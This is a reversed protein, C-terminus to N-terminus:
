ITSSQPLAARVAQLLITALRAVPPAPDMSALHLALFLSPLEPLAAEGPGLARVNPPLGACTRLTLGLGAAAAAWLGGLNPSTFAIRWPIGAHDLAATAAARFLCPAEFVLLPLPEDDQGRWAEGAGAAGIWHMPLEAVHETRVAGNGGGWTLALDLRGSEVRELLEANRAVRAEIRVKPH